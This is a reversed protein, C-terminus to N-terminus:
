QSMKATSMTGASPGESTLGQTAPVVARADLSATREM